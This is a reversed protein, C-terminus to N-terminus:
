MIRQRFAEDHIGSHPFPRAQHAPPEGRGLRDNETGHPTLQRATLCIVM